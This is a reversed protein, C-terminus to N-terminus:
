RRQDAAMEIPFRQWIPDVAQGGPARMCKRRRLSKRQRDGPNRPPNWRAYCLEHPDAIDGEGIDVKGVTLQKVAKLQQPDDARELSRCRDDTVVICEAWCHHMPESVNSRALRGVYVAVDQPEPQIAAHHASDAARARVHELLTRRIM